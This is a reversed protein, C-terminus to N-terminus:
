YTEQPYDEPFYWRPEITALSPAGGASMGPIYGGWNGGVVMWRGDIKKLAFVGHLIANLRDVGNALLLAKNDDIMKTELIKVNAPWAASIVMLDFMGELDSIHKATARKALDKRRHRLAAHTYEEFATQPTEPKKEPCGAIPLILLSLSVALLARRIRHM